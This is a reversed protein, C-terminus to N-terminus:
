QSPARRARCPRVWATYYRYDIGTYGDGLYVIWAGGEPDSAGRSSTWYWDNKAGPIRSPDRLAPGHKTRDIEPLWDKDIDPLRWGDGLKAVAAGAEAHTMRKGGLDEPYWEIGTIETAPNAENGTQPSTTEVCSLIASPQAAVEIHLNLTNIRIM